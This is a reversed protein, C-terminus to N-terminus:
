ENTRAWCLGARDGDSWTDRQPVEFGYSFAADTQLYDRVPEECSERARDQVTRPGPYAEKAGGVTTIAVARWQHPEQCIVHRFGPANPSVPSCRGFRASTRDRNLVGELSRPLDTLETPTAYAYVDCRVWRAGRNWQESPPLFYTPTLMSLRRDRRNGGVYGDFRSRCTRDAAAEVREDAPAIADETASEPLTGVFFTVVTHARKCPVPPEDNIITRLQDVSVGRCEGEKPPPDPEPPATETAAPGAAAKASASPATPEPGSSSGFCAGALLVVACATALRTVRSGGPGRIPM